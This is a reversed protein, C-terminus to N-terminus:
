VAGSYGPGEGVRLGTGDNRNGSIYAEDAAYVVVSEGKMLLYSLRRRQPCWDRCGERGERFFRPNSM